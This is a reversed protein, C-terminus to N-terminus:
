KRRQTQYYRKALSKIGKKATKKKIKKKWRQDGAVYEPTKTNRATM